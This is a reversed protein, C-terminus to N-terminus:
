IQIECHSFAKRYRRQVALKDFCGSPNINWYNGISRALSFGWNKFTKLFPERDELKVEVVVPNDAAGATVPDAASKLGSPVFYFETL